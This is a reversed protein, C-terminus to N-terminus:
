KLVNDTVYQEGSLDLVHFLLCSSHHGSAPSMSRWAALVPLGPVVVTACADMSPAAIGKM